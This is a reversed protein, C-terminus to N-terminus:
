PTATARPPWAIEVPGVYGHKEILYLRGHSPESCGAEDIVVLNPEWVGIPTFAVEGARCVWVEALYLPSQPSELETLPLIFPDWFLSVQDGTRVANVNQLRPWNTTLPLKVKDPYVIELSSIDGNLQVDRANM